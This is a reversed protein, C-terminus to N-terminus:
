LGLRQRLHEFRPDRQLDEFMPEKITEWDMSKDDVAKDLWAFAQNTDGFGAHVVAADFAGIEGRERGDLVETLIRQAEERQGARALAYGLLYRARPGEDGAITRLVSAAEAWMEKMIYCKGALLVARRVRPRIPLVPELRALAEDYRGNAFLAEAVAVSTNPSLPEIEQARQATALAEAPRGSAIQVRALQWHFGGNTPDLAIARRILAEASAYDSESLRVASLAWYATGLSDDLALAKRATKEAAELLEDQAITFPDGMQVYAAALAAYAAAYTSDIAIAQQLYGIRERFGIDTRTQTPDSRLYLEYAALNRSQYRPSLERAGTTTEEPRHEVRPWFAVGALAVLATTGAVLEARRFRRLIGSSPGRTLDALLGAADAYRDDPDKQLLKEVIRALPAPVNARRKSVPEPDAHLIAEFLKTEDDGRFPREGTLTEYVVVGLSWLDTRPDVPDGRVQEPSMYPATGPTTGSDTLTAEIAQAIGFDLLRVTGDPGVIVNGPKVDRHIIGRAHAAALGRAIQEATAAAEELPLPGPRLREALTEGEYLAMAIFPRGNDTQGIEHVTCINPHVLAAAARAEKLLRDEDDLRTSLPPLFKLAVDRELSADYARYVVGMGGGGILALIRYRGVTTGIPLEIRPLAPATDISASDRAGEGGEEREIPFPSSFVSDGLFDFFEEAAEAEELLSVLEEYLQPDGRCAAEVFVARAGPDLARAEEYLREAEENM